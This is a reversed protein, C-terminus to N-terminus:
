MAKPRTVTRSAVIVCHVVLETGSVIAVQVSNPLSTTKVQSSTFTDTKM